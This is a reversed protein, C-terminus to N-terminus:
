TKVQAMFLVTASKSVAVDREPPSCRCCTSCLAKRGIPLTKVYTMKDNLDTNAKADTDHVLLLSLSSM